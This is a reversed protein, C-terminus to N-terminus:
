KSVISRKPANKKPESWLMVSLLKIKLKLDEINVFSVLPVIFLKIKPVLNVETLAYASNQEDNRCKFFSTNKGRIADNIIFHDLISCYHSLWFSGQSIDAPWIKELNLWQEWGLYFDGVIRRRKSNATRFLLSRLM